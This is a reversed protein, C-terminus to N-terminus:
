VGTFYQNSTLESVERGYPDVITIVVKEANQHFQSSLANATAMMNEIGKCTAIALKQYNIHFTYKM